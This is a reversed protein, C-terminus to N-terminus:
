EVSCGIFATIWTYDPTTMAEWQRAPPCPQTDLDRHNGALAQKNRQHWIIVIIENGWILPEPCIFCVNLQHVCSHFRSSQINVKVVCSHPSLSRGRGSVQRLHAWPYQPNMLLEGCPAARLVCAATQQDATLFARYKRESCQLLMVCLGFLEYSQSHLRWM